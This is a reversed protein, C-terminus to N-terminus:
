QIENSYELLTNRVAAEPLIEDMTGAGHRLSRLAVSHNDGVKREDLTTFPVRRSLPLLAGWNSLSQGRQSRLKRPCRSCVRKKPRGPRSIWAEAM